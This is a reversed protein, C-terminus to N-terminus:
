EVDDLDPIKVEIDKTKTIINVLDDDSLTYYIYDLSDEDFDEEEILEYLCNVIGELEEKTLSNPNKLLKRIGDIGYEEVYSYLSEALEMQIKDYLYTKKLKALNEKDVTLVYNEDFVDKGLVKFKIGKWVIIMPKGNVDYYVTALEDDDDYLSHVFTVKVNEKKVIGM